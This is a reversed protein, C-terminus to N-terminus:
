RAVVEEAPLPQAPRRMRAQQAAPIKENRLRPNSIADIGFNILALGTVLLAIALGPPIFTWWAGTELASNNQAWYLISFWSVESLNGLGLFQLGASVGIGFITAGIFNSVVLSIMNPLIDRLVIRGGTEGRVIAAQIFDKRRMSLTQSRLVRAGWAWGTFSLILILPIDSKSQVWSALVIVLALGPIVLVINTLLMLLDDIWGGFYGASMGIVIALATAVFGVAFGIFLAPRTGDVMQLFINHSQQDTGLWYTASPPQTPPSTYDARAPDGPWILPGIVAVLVFFLVIAVGVAARRDSLLLTLWRPLSVWLRRRRPAALAAAAADATEAHDSSAESTPYPNMTM